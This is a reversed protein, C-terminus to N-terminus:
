KLIKNQQLINIIYQARYKYSHKEVTHKGQNQIHIREEPHQLYYRVIKTTEEPSSSVVLDKGPKFLSRIEATDSTVLFGGSGLIEYTRQTLQTTHNQLGIVINASSYVKNAETYPLYGHIWNEPIDYGLHQKMKNWYRGWFDVRINEKLLPRILTKLSEHRYHNPYQTLKTPYANAVVALDCQYHQDSNTPFHVKPHYGFDMHAAKINLKKYDKVRKPCISFVFDPQVKKIYPLSFTQTHTPDETAWYVHPVESFKVIRKIKNQKEPSDNEPGWSISIFLHPNFDRIIKEINPNNLPGSIKVQHGLDKFGNPLGHIWMPHSELFLIRM